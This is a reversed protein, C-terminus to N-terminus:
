KQELKSLAENIKGLSEEANKQEDIQNHEKTIKLIENLNEAVEGTVNKLKNEAAVMGIGELGVIAMGIVSIRDNNKIKSKSKAEVMEKIFEVIDKTPKEFKQKAALKGLEGFFLVTYLSATEIENKIVELGVIRLNFTADTLDELKHMAGVKGIEKLEILSFYAADELKNNAAKIGIFMITTIFLSTIDFEKEASVKGVQGLSIIVFMTSYKLKNNVAVEGIRSLSNLIEIISSEDNKNAAIKGIRTFHPFIYKSIEEENKEDLFDDNLMCKISDEITKLGYRATEYDYNMMSSRVIDIVPQIPDKEMDVVPYFQREKPNKVDKFASLVNEITIREALKEILTSSKLLELTKWIYPVLSVFAFVGLYYSFAIHGELNSLSNVQSNATEILKLVVLGYFMAVGYVLILIWLDPTRRFVEIVRASYSSAALQVAVLSLSVVIALIAAESTVLASLLARASDVDTHLFGFYSFVVHSAIIVAAGLSFYLGLRRAWLSLENSYKISM